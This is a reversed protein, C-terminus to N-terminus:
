SFFQGEALKAADWLPAGKRVVKAAKAGPKGGGIAASLIYSTAKIFDKTVETQSKTQCASALDTVNLAMGGQQYSDRMVNIMKNCSENVKVCTFNIKMRAFEQMQDQIKFGEPSGAPYDDGTDCIDKGHGPADFIHFVTKISTPDWAM